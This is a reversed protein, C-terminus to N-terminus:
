PCRKLEEREWEILDYIGLWDPEKGNLVALLENRRQVHSIKQFQMEISRVEKL